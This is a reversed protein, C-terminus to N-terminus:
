WQWPVVESSVPEILRISALVAEVLNVAFLLWWAPPPGFGRVALVVFAIPLYFSSILILIQVPKKRPSFFIAGILLGLSTLFSLGILWDFPVSDFGTGASVIFLAAFWAGSGILTAMTWWWYTMEFNRGLFNM